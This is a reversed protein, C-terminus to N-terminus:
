YLGLYLHLSIYTHINSQIWLCTLNNNVVSMYMTHVIWRIVVYQIWLKIFATSGLIPNNKKWKYIHFAFIFVQNKPPTFMHCLSKLHKAQMNYHHALKFNIICNMVDYEYLCCNIILHLFTPRDPRIQIQHDWHNM